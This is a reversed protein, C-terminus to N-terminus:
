RRRSQHRPEHVGAIQWGGLAVPLLERRQRVRRALQHEAIATEGHPPDHIFADQTGNFDGPVLNSAYGTFAVFRGDGSLSIGFCSSDAQNGHSDVSVRELAGTALDRVHDDWVGNTDSPVLASSSSFGIFRGNGSFEGMASEGDGQGGNVDVSVRVTTGGALDHVFVDLAGNTDGPVLNSAVSDFGILLGDVSISAQRSRANAEAGNSAVSARRTEGSQRDHWFIDTVGNGDAPVLNTADSAFAVLRGGLSLTPWVSSGNSQVGASDVSVLETVGTQLDHVFVDVVGNTDHPVLNSAASAFAVVRGDGSIDVGNFSWGWIGGSDGNGQAGSSDVSVRRTEGTVNDRVFVDWAGNTDNPVLNSAFSAFVVLRGDDSIAPNYFGSQANGEAGSTDV